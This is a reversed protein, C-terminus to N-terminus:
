NQLCVSLNSNIVIGFIFIINVYKMKSVCPCDLAIKVMMIDENNLILSICLFDKKIEGIFSGDLRHRSYSAPREMHRNLLLNNASLSFAKFLHFLYTHIAKIFSSIVHFSINQQSTVLKKFLAFFGM